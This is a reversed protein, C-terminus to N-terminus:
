AETAKRLDVTFEHDPGFITTALGLPTTGDHGLLDLRAGATLLVRACEEHGHWIADHLPTYGNTAGQFDKDVGHDVLIRTIDAHGNYVAKHLPVAGFVPEVADADAGAALLMEVIEAHGDRAAVLLPTHRDNFGNLMPSRVDVDDTSAIATRSGEVDGRAVAAMLQQDREADEDRRTRAQVAADAAELREQGVANACLAYRLHDRMTFGYHTSLNLGADRDLLFEVIDPWKYWIADLVPTHGTTPVVANVYAGAKVLLRVTDLDGSQVAKHLATGGAVRDTTRVDAGAGLLARTTASDGRGASTMLVNLGSEADWTRADAGVTLLEAVEDSAGSRVAALLRDDLDLDFAEVEPTPDFYVKWYAIQGDDDVTLRHTAEVHFSKGTRRHRMTAATVVFARAGDVVVDLTRYDVGESAAGRMGFSEAVADRGIHVGLNPVVANREHRPLEHYVSGALRALVDDIEGAGIQDFWREVIEKTRASDM